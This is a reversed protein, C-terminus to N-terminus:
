KRYSHDIALRLESISSMTKIEGNSVFSINGTEESVVIATADTTETISAAARHRMGYQPPVNPNDTIPITCRAAVIRNSSLIMAGDHLPTNKYFINEILRRNIRADIRDGTEIVFELSSLHSFVILAGTRTESMRRCAQTIEDMEELPIEKEKGSFLAKFLRGAKATSVYRSGLHLLFRRIEPQFLVILAIVGVGLIQGLISSLLNMNLAKVIVWTIYLIIVGLFINIASTGRILRFLQFILLAVLIIDIIDIVKIHIFDFMPAFNFMKNSM